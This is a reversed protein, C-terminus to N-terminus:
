AEARLRRLTRRFRREVAERAVHRGERVRHRGASWVDTVLRDDAAFIWADLLADGKLGVLATAEGDLALLDALAGPAIRGVDRGLARAGGALAVDYLARGTSGGPPALAARVRDRLRQGYDLTRLEEALAIRVNSDSGVGFRGGAERFRRADFLGDGLNAETIPCLGVTAGRRALAEVEAPAAHTAHILCWRGDVPQADLLWAVPPAGHAAAVAEVEAVQEAVHIHVPGESVLAAAFALDEPSVARLSHPAVGLRADAPLAALGARADEVLAAFRDRGCGFRRQGGELPRGDLGGRAYLVPLLTLGIGTRDAAAAIRRAMEAPADYARGDPAHHLYHFEGLAAYGAEMSEVMVQAAIAEVDDPDLRELFRYMLARWTWFSDRGEAGRREALGAMARQFAHSHLNAPAPLLVEVRAAGAPAAGGLGVAAVRGDAGIQVRAEERWGEPLLARRAAIVTM